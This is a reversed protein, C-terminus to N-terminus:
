DINKQVRVAKSMVSSDGVVNRDMGTTRKDALTPQNTARTGESTSRPPRSREPTWLGM